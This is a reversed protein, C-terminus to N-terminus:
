YCRLTLVTCNDSGGREDAREVLRQALQSASTKTFGMEALIAEDDLHTHLGDCAVLLWDGVALKVRYPVPDLKDSMGVASTIENRARHVLAQKPTLQGLEVMRAVLTQDRTVQTLKGGRQHYVRADGVHGIFADEGRIVLGAATAGMGKCKADQQATKWVVRNAEQLAASIADAIDADGKDVGHLMESILPTLKSGVVRIVLGSALDGAAAGGMGDAVLLVALERWVDLNCSVVHQILFSDENRERVRGPSTAAGLDFRIPPSPMEARTKANPDAKTTFSRACRGCKVPVGVHQEALLCPTGCHPCRVRVPV